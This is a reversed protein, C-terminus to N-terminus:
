RHPIPQTVDNPKIEIIPRTGDLRTIEAKIKELYPLNDDVVWAVIPTYNRYLIVQRAIAGSIENWNNMKEPLLIKFAKWKYKKNKIFDVHITNKDVFELSDFSYSIHNIILSTDTKEINRLGFWYKVVDVDENDKNKLSILITYWQASDPKFWEYNTLGASFHMISDDAPNFKKSIPKFLPQKRKNYVGVTIYFKDDIDPLYRKAHVMLDFQLGKKTNSTKIFFDSISVNPFSLIQARSVFKNGNILYAEDLKAELVIANMRGFVLYPTINWLTHYNAQAAKGIKGGNVWINLEPMANEIYLFVQLGYWYEPIPIVKRLLLTKNINTMLSDHLVIPINTSAWNSADYRVYAFNKDIKNEDFVTLNWAGDLNLFWSSQEPLMSFATGEDPFHIAISRPPQEPLLVIKRPLNRAARYQAISINCIISLLAILAIIKKIRFMKIRM